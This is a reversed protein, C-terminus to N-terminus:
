RREQRVAIMFTVVIVSHMMAATALAAGANEGAVCCTRECNLM